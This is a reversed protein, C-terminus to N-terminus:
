AGYPDTGLSAAADIQIPTVPDPRGRRRVGEPRIVLIGDRDLEVLRGALTRRLAVGKGGAECLAAFCAELRELRVPPPRGAGSRPHEGADTASPVREVALTLVRLAIEPPEQAAILRFPVTASHDELLASKAFVRGAILDLAEDARALREAVRGLRHAHLGEAALTPMIRRWRARAFAPDTNSPDEVFDWGRALCTAVLRAKPVALFPRVHCLEGRRVQRRMGRLGTPGSGAALRILLTEAQDDLTHATVLHTAGLVDAHRV